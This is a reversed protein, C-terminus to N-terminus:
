FIDEINHSISKLVSNSTYILSVRATFCQMEGSFNSKKKTDKNLIDKRHNPFDLTPTSIKVKADM